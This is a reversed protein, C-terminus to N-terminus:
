RQAIEKAVWSGMKLYSWLKLEQPHLFVSKQPSNSFGSLPIQTKAAMQIGGSKRGKKWGCIFMGSLDLDRPRFEEWPEM